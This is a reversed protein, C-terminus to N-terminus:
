PLFQQQMQILLKAPLAENRLLNDDTSKDKSKSKDKEDQSFIQTLENWKEIIRPDDQHMAIREKIIKEVDCYSIM